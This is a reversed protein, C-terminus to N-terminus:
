QGQEEKKVRHLMDIAATFGQLWTDREQKTWEGNTPLLQLWGQLVQHIGSPPPPPTGGPPPPKHEHGEPKSEGEDDTRPKILPEVLHGKGTSFFGAEQASSMLVRHATAVRAKVVGFEHELTNKLGVDAPLAQGRYHDYVAKFLPVGLFADIKAQEVDEPYEPSLIRQARKTSTVSGSSAEVLGFLAAGAIRSRFAGSATSKADLFRALQDLTCKGGGRDRVARAVKIADELDYYPYKIESRPKRKGQPEPQPALEDIVAM